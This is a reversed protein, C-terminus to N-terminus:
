RLLRSGSPYRELVEAALAGEAFELDEGVDIRRGPKVLAEWVGPARRELLLAEVRGGSRRRGMLRAPLVRTDNMVLLDGAELLEVVERFRRHEIAGTERRLVLLRSADRPEIPSQAIREPPLPYDFAELRM